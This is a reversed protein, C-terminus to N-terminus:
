TMSNLSRDEIGGGGEIHLRGRFRKESKRIVSNIRSDCTQDFDRNWM